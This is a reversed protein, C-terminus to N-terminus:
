IVARSLTLSLFRYVLDHVPFRILARCYRPLPVLDSHPTPSNYSSQKLVSHSIQARPSDPTNLAQAFAALSLYGVLAYVFHFVSKLIFIIQRPNADEIAARSQTAAGFWAEGEGRQDGAWGSGLNRHFRMSKLGRATGGRRGNGLQLRGHSERRENM